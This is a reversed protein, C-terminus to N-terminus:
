FREGIWAVSSESSVAEPVVVEEEEEESLEEEEEDVSDEEEIEFAISPPRVESGEPAEEDESESLYSALSARRTELEATVEDVTLM